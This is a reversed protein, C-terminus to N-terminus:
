QNYKRKWESKAFSFEISDKYDERKPMPPIMEKATLTSQTKIPKHNSSRETLIKEKNGPKNNEAVKKKVTVIELPTPKNSKDWAEIKLESKRSLKKDGKIVGSLCNQPLGILRELDSKSYGKELNAKLVIIYDM